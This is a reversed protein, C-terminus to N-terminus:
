LTTVRIFNNGSIYIKKMLSNTIRKIIDYSEQKDSHHPNLM